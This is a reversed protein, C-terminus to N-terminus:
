LNHAAPVSHSEFPLLNETYKLIYQVSIISCPHLCNVRFNSLLNPKNHVQDGDDGREGACGNIGPYGPPGPIKSPAGPSGKVGAM